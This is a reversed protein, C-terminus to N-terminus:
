LPHYLPLARSEGSPSHNMGAGHLKRILTVETVHSFVTTWNSEVLCRLNEGLVGTKVHLLMPGVLPHGKGSMWLSCSLFSIPSDLIFLSVLKLLGRIGLEAM